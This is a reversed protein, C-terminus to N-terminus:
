LFSRKEELGVADKPKQCVLIRGRPEFNSNNVADLEKRAEM